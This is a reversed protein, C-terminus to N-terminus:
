VKHLAVAVREQQVHSVNTYKQLSNSRLDMQTQPVTLSPTVLLRAELNIM